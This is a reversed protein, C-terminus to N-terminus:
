MYMYMYMYTVISSVSPDPSGGDRVTRKEQAAMASTEVVCLGCLCSCHAVSTVM